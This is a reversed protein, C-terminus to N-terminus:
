FSTFYLKYSIYPYFQLKLFILGLKQQGLCTVIAQATTSQMAAVICLWRSAHDVAQMTAMICPWHSVCSGGTHSGHHGALVVRPQLKCPWRNNDGHARVVQHLQRRCPYTTTAIAHLLTTTTTAAAMSKPAACGHRWWLCHHQQRRRVYHCQAVLMVIM